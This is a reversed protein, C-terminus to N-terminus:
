YVNKSNRIETVIEKMVPSKFQDSRQFLQVSKPKSIKSNSVKASLVYKITQISSYTSINMRGSKKDMVDGMVSFSGEVRPGHFITLLALSIKNLLPYDKLQAWWTDARVPKKDVIAQPLTIDVM